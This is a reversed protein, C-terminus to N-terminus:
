PASVEIAFSLELAAAQEALGEIEAQLGQAAILDADLRLDQIAAVSDALTVQRVTERVGQLATIFAGARQAVENAAEGSGGRELEQQEAGLASAELLRLYPLLGVADGPNQLQGNGDWDAYFEGTRGDMINLTHEAHLRVGAIDDAAIAEIAYGLHSAFHGTQLRLLEALGGLLPQGPYEEAQVQALAALEGPMRGEFLAQTPGVLLAGTNEMSIVLGRYPGILGLSQPHQYSVLLEGARWAVEGDRNLNLAESQKEGVLWAQYSLGEPLEAAAALRLELHSDRVFAYGAPGFETPTDAAPQIETASPSPRITASAVPAAGTPEPTSGAAQRLTRSGLVAGLGLVAIALVVGAVIGVPRSITPGGAWPTIEGPTAPQVPTHRLETAQEVPLSSIAQQLEMAMQSVKAYRNKPEKALAREVVKRISPSVDVLKPPDEHVHKFLIAAPTDSRPDFPLKGALIEYLIVGLSYMDSRADVAEGRVQEPSMYAPTGLVTGSATPTTSTAIRAVGFDTLVPESDSALPLSPDISQKGARLIINAPKVDRHVIGRQHAYELANTLSSTLRGVTELPLSLGLAHLGSLYDSLVMGELLEMIIYPQDDVVDFDSVQVINPHRLAAVAQAEDRFRRRLDSDATMHAHLIKVAMPRNLTTHRGLYVDAMGGRGILREIRVKSLVRGIWSDM